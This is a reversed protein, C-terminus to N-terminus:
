NLEDFWTKQDRIGFLFTDRHDADDGANVATAPAGGIAQEYEVPLTAEYPSIVRDAKGYYYRSPTLYRWRYAQNDLVQRYFRNAVLSSDKAFDDALFEKVTKPLNKEAEAWDIKNLYFDRATQWYEPKIAMNSLGELGYYREYSNIFLSAIGVMWEVELHSPDNIWKAVLIYLDNPTGAMAAAKIPIGLEELKHRFIMASWAGQSWGSLYLGDTKIGMSDLVQRAAFLMDICAQVTSQKVMYSDTEPSLGKGIYDPGIVVYGNGAFEAVMFSTEPSKELNSPVEDKTFVTGHQYSVMPFVKESTDPIAILGSAEVPRNGQEPIATMYIVRFLKVDNHAPELVITSKKETFDNLETTLIRNLREVNYAGIYEYRASGAVNVYDGAAAGVGVVCILVVVLLFVKIRHKM